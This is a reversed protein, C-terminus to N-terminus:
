NTTTKNQGTYAKLALSILKAPNNSTEKELDAITYGESLLLTRAAKVISPDDSLNSLTTEIQNGNKRNEARQKAFDKLTNKFAEMEATKAIENSRLQATTQPKQAITEESSCSTIGSASLAVFLLGAYFYTKKM